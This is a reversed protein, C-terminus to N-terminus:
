ATAWLGIVNGERDKVWQYMGRDAGLAVRQGVLEAGLERARLIAQALNPVTFYLVPATGGAIPRDTIKRLGGILTQSSEIMVYDPEPSDNMQRYDWGLLGQYFSMADSLNRVPLDFWGSHGVTSRTAM